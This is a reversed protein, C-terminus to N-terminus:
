AEIDFIMVLLETAISSGVNSRYTYRIETAM